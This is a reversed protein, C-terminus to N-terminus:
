YWGRRSSDGPPHCGAIILSTRLSSAHPYGVQDQIEGTSRLLSGTSLLISSTPASTSGDREARRKLDANVSSTGCRVTSQLDSFVDNMSLTNRNLESQYEGDKSHAWEFTVCDGERSRLLVILWALLIIDEKLGSVSLDEKSAIGDISFTSFGNIEGYDTDSGSTSSNKRDHLDLSDLSSISSM